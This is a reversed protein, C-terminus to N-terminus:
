GSCTFTTRRPSAAHDGLCTSVGPIATSRNSGAPTCPWSGRRACRTSGPPSGPAIRHRHIDWYRQVHRLFRRQGVDDLSRWLRQGHPRLGDMTWQWPKGDRMGSRARARIAHLRERVGLALLDDVETPPGRGEAHALPMLGHRSLVTIRGRHGHGALSAVADAMSLGAGIICVDADPPIAAIATYDWANDIAAAHTCSRTAALSRPFNGTAMVVAAAHLTRGSALRIAYPRSGTIDVATDRLHASGPTAFEGLTARLYGGYELRPVYTRAVDDGDAMPTIAASQLYRVFHGPDDGFASMGGAPVNLLHAPDRTSYAAGEGPLARPEIICLRVRGDSARLLHIAALVGAAGGGIIAVDFPAAATTTDSDSPRM